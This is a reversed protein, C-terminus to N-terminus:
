SQEETNIVPNPLFPNPWHRISRLIGTREAEFRELAAIRLELALIRNDKGYEIVANAVASVVAGLLVAKVPPTHPKNLAARIREIRTM